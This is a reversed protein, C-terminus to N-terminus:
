KGEEIQVLISYLHSLPSTRRSSKYFFFFVCLKDSCERDKPTSVEGSNKGCKGREASYTSYMHEEALKASITIVWM